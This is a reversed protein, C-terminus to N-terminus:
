FLGVLRLAAIAAFGLLLADFLRQPIRAVCWRGAFLGAAIAPVLMANFLLTGPHILGLQASFPVKLCNIILFFWASTGVLEFKPLSVAVFFLAMIPGAANAVMTTVGAMLGMLWAFWLKHPANEYLRPQWLRLLQLATLALIITGALPKFVSDSLQQMLWWGVVIGAVAPPLLRRIYEWRAHQRFAVVALVDGVILMPLVVGTSERAGFLFIFALVHVLSVGAFGSKSMGIGFAAIVAVLWKIPTPDPM